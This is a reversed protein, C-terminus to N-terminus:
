ILRFSPPEAEDDLESVEIDDFSVDVEFVADFVPPANRVVVVGVTGPQAESRV